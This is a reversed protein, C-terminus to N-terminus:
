QFGQRGNGVPCHQPELPTSRMFAHDADAAIEVAHGVRGPPSHEVDVNEGVLDADELVPRKNRGMRRQFSPTFLPEIRRM